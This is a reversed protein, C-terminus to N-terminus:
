SSLSVGEEKDLLERNDERWRKYYIALQDKNDEFWLLILAAQEEQSVIPRKKVNINNPTNEIMKRKITRAERKNVSDYTEVPVAYWSDWGGHERINDFLLLYSTNNNTSYYQSKFTKMARVISLSTYAIYADKITENKCVIQYFYHTKKTPNESKWKKSDFSVTAGSTSASTLTDVNDTTTAVQICEPIIAFCPLITPLSSILMHNCLQRCNTIYSSLMLIDHFLVILVYVFSVYLLCM